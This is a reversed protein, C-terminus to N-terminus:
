PIVARGTGDKPGSIDCYCFKQPAEPMHKLMLNPHMRGQGEKGVMLVAYGTTFAQHLDIYHTSKHTGWGESLM